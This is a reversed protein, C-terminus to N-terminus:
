SKLIALAVALMFLAFLIIHQKCEITPSLSIYGQVARKDANESDKQQDADFNFYIYIFYSIFFLYLQPHSTFSPPSLRSCYRIM